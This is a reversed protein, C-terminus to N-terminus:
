NIQNFQNRSFVCTHILSAVFLEHNEILHHDKNMLQINVEHYEFLNLMILDFSM